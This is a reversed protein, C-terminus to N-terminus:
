LDIDKIKKLKHLDMDNFIKSLEPEVACSYKAGKKYNMYSGKKSNDEFFKVQAIRSGVILEVPTEANSKINLTMVGSYGPNIITSFHIGLRDYSSRSIIEGHINNPLRIYELTNALVYQGPYLIFSEGMARYTEDFFQDVDPRSCSIVSSGTKIPVRFTADLRLDVCVSSIQQDDLLPDLFISGELDKYNNIRSKLSNYSLLKM